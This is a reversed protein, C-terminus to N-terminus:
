MLEPKQDAHIVLISYRGKLYKHLSIHSVYPPLLYLPFFSRFLQHLFQMASKKYYVDVFMKLFRTTKNGQHQFNIRSVQILKHSIILYLHNRIITYRSYPFMVFEQWRVRSFQTTDWIEYGNVLRHTYELNLITPFLCNDIVFIIYCLGSM